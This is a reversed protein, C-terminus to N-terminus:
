GLVQGDRMLFRGASVVYRLDGERAALLIRAPWDEVAGIFASAKLDFAILDAAAGTALARGGTALSLVQGPSVWDSPPHTARPLLLAFKAAELMSQSDNSGAGDTGLAVDAGAALAATLPAVGCGLRLNAVPNHVIRAGSRAILPLDGPELHVAHVLEISPRLLGLRALHAVAGTGYLARSVEADESSECLHMHLFSGHENALAALGTLLADTCRHPASPGLGLPVPLPRRLLSAALGLLEATGQQPGQRLPVGALAGGPGRRDRLMVAMRVQLGTAAWAAATVEVAEPRLPIQRFHDTVAVAGGRVADSACSRVATRIADADLADLGDEYAAALWARQDSMPARGRALVETSHTHGNRFGPLILLDSADLIAAGAPAPLTPGTAMIRGDQVLMDGRRSRWGDAPDLLLADRLLHAM